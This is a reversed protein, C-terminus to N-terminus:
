EDYEDNDIDSETESGDSQSKKLDDHILNEMKIKEQEYKREELLKQPFYNKKAEIVSGLYVSAHLKKKQCKKVTFIQLLVIVM